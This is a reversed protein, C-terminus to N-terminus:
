KTCLRPTGPPLSLATWSSAKPSPAPMKAASLTQLRQVPLRITQLHTSVIRNLVGWRCPLATSLTLKCGPQVAPRRAHLVGCCAAASEAYHWCPKFLVACTSTVQNKSAFKQVLNRTGRPVLLTETFSGNACDCDDESRSSCCVRLRGEGCLESVGRLLLIKASMRELELSDLSWSHATALIASIM